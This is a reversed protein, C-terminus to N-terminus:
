GRSIRGWVSISGIYIPMLNRVGHTDVGRRSAYMLVDAADKAHEPQFGAKGFITEVFNRLPEAQAFILDSMM